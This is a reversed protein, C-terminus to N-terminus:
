IASPPASGKFEGMLFFNRQKKKKNGGERGGKWDRFANQTHVDRSFTSLLSAM